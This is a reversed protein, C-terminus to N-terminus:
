FSRVAMINCKFDKFYSSQMGTNLNHTWANGKDIETATWYWTSKFIGGMGLKKFNLKPHILDFEEKTPLRWDDFGNINLDDCKKKADEFDGKGILEVTAILGHGNKEYILYGGLKIPPTKKVQDQGFMNFAGLFLTACIILRFTNKLYLQVAM